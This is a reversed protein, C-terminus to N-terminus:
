VSIQTFYKDIYYKFISFTNEDRISKPLNNNFVCKAYYFISKDCLNIRNRNLSIYTANRDNSYFEIQNFWENPIKYSKTKINFILTM